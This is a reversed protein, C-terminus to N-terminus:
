LLLLLNACSYSIGSVVTVHRRNPTFGPPCALWGIVGGRHCSPRGANRVTMGEDSQAKAHFLVVPLVKRGDWRIVTLLGSWARSYSTGTHRGFLFYLLLGLAQEGGAIPNHFYYHWTIGM